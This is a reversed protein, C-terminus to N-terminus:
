RNIVLLFATVLLLMTALVALYALISAANPRGRGNRLVRGYEDVQLHIRREKKLVFDRGLIAAGLALVFLAMPGALLFSGLVLLLLIGAGATPFSWRKVIQAAVSGQSAVRFGRRSYWAIEDRLIESRRQPDLPLNNTAM